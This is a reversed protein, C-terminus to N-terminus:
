IMLPLVCVFLVEDEDEDACYVELALKASSTFYPLQVKIQNQGTSIVVVNSRERLDGNYSRQLKLAFLNFEENLAIETAYEKRYSVFEFGANRCSQYLATSQMDSIGVEAATLKQQITDAVNREIQGFSLSDSELGNVCDPFLVYLKLITVGLTKIGSSDRVQPIVYDAFQGFDSAVQKVVQKM